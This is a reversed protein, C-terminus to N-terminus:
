TFCNWLRHHYYSESWRRSTKEVAEVSLGFGEYHRHPIYNTFNSYGAATLFDHLVVGGPIGDCDYDSFIAIRSKKKIAELIRTVAKDMDHLLFPDHLGSDYDTNIFAAAASADTIDRSFLLQQLHQSHEGLAAEVPETIREALRYTIKPAM